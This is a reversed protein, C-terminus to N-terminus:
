GNHTGRGTLLDPNVAGCKVRLGREQTELWGVYEDRGLTGSGSERLM